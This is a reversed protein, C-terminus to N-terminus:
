AVFVNTTQILADSRKMCVGPLWAKRQGYM